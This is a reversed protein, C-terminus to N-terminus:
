VKRRRSLCRMDIKVKDFTFLIKVCTRLLACVHMQGVVIQCTWGDRSGARWKGVISAREVHRKSYDCEIDGIIHYQGSRIM